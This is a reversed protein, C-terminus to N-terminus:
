HIENKPLSFYEKKKEKKNEHPVESVTEESAEHTNSSFDGCQATAINKVGHFYRWLNSPLVCSVWCFKFKMYYMCYM